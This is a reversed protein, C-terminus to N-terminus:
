LIEMIEKIKKKIKKIYEDPLSINESINFESFKNVKLKSVTTINNVDAFSNGEYKKIQNSLKESGKIDKEIKSLQDLNNDIKTIYQSIRVSINVMFKYETIDDLSNIQENIFFLKSYLSEKDEVHDISLYDSYIKSIISKEENSPSDIYNEIDSIIEKGLNDISIYENQYKITRHILDELKQNIMEYSATFLANDLRVYGPKHKSSLPVVTINRKNKDDNNNIVVGFHGCSMESGVRVGFDIMVITGQRFKRYFKPLKHNIEKDLYHGYNNMWYPLHKMKFSTNDSFYVENFKHLKDRKTNADM